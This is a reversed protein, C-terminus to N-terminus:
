GYLSGHAKSALSGSNPQLPRILELSEVSALDIHMFEGPVVFDLHVSSAAVFTDKETELHRSVVLSSSNDDCL